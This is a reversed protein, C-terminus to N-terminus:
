HLMFKGGVAYFPKLYLPRLMKDAEKLKARIPISQPCHQECKGCGVCQSAYGPNSRVANVKFYDSWVSVKSEIGSLNYYYFIGPIDVGKPCPMCYR